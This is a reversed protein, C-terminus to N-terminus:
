ISTGSAAGLGLYDLAFKLVLLFGSCRRVLVSCGVSGSIFVLTMLRLNLSWSSVLVVGAPVLVSGSVGGGIGDGWCDQRVPM